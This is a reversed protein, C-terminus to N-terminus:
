VAALLSSSHALRTDAPGTLFLSLFTILSFAPIKYPHCLTKLRSQAKYPIFSSPNFLPPIEKIIQVFLVKHTEKKKKKGYVGSRKYGFTRSSHDEPLPTGTELPLAAWKWVSALPAPARWTALPGKNNMVLPLSERSGQVAQPSALEWWTKLKKSGEGTRWRYGHDM